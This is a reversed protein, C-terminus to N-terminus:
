LTTLSGTVGIQLFDFNSLKNRNIISKSKEVSGVISGSATNDTSIDEFYSESDVELLFKTRALVKKNNKFTNPDSFHTSQTEQGTTLGIYKMIHGSTLSNGPLISNGLVKFGTQADFTEFLSCKFINSRCTGPYDGQLIQSFGPASSDAQTASGGTWSSVNWPFQINVGGSWVIREHSYSHAPDDDCLIWTNNDGTKKIRLGSTTTNIYLDVSGTYTGDFTGHSNDEMGTGVNSVTFGSHFHAGTWTSVDSPRVTNQGGSWAIPTHVYSISPDEDVLIWTNDAGSTKIRLGSNSVTTNPYLSGVELIPEM